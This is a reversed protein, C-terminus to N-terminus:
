KTKVVQLHETGNVILFYIGPAKGSLDVRYASANVRYEQVLKGTADVLRITNSIRPNLGSVVAVDATPNPFVAIGKQQNYVTRVESYTVQENYGMQKIRYYSIGPLPHYDVAEYSTVASSNGAGQIREGPLWHIGDASREIQFYHNDKETGTQWQLDVRNNKLIANFTLFEVPLISNLICAQCGSTAEIYYTSSRGGNGDIYLYYRQGPTLGQLKFETNATIGNSYINGSLTIGGQNASSL